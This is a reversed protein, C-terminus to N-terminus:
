LSVLSYGKGSIASGTVAGTGLEYDLSFSFSSCDFNEAALLMYERNTNDPELVHSFEDIPVYESAGDAVIYTHSEADVTFADTVVTLQITLAVRFQDSRYPHRELVVRVSEITDISRSGGWRYLKRRFTSFAKPSEWIANSVDSLLEPAPLSEGSVEAAIAELDVDTTIEAYETFEQDDRCPSSWYTVCHDCTPHFRSRSRSARSSQTTAGSSPVQFSVTPDVTASNRDIVQIGVYGGSPLGAPIDGGSITLAAYQPTPQTSVRSLGFSLIEVTAVSEANEVTCNAVLYNEERTKGWRRLVQGEGVDIFPSTGTDIDASTTKQYVRVPSTFTYISGPGPFDIEDVSIPGYGLDFLNVVQDGSQTFVEESPDVLREFRGRTPKTVLCIRGPTGVPTGTSYSEDFITEVGDVVMGISIRPGSTSAYRQFEAFIHDGLPGKTYFDEHEPPLPSAHAIWRVGVGSSLDFTINQQWFWSGTNIMPRKSMMTSGIAIKTSTAFVEEASADGIIYFDDRLSAMTGWESLDCPVGCCPCGPSHKKRAM